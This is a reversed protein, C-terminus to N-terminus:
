LLNSLFLVFFILLKSCYEKLYLSCNLIPRLVYLIKLLALCCVKTFYNVRVGRRSIGSAAARFKLEKVNGGKVTSIIFRLFM